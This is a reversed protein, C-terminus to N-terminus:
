VAPLTVSRVLSGTGCQLLDVVQTEGTPPRLVLVAPEGEYLVAVGTGDGYDIPSCGQWARQVRRAARSLPVSDEAGRASTPQPAVQRQLRQASRSFGEEDVRALRGRVVLLDGLAKQVAGGDYAFASGSEMSSLAEPQEDSDQGAAGGAASGAVAQDDTRGQSSDVASEESASDAATTRDGSPTGVVQGLGVGLVAVAAAAVLVSVVRRRRRAALEHVDAVPEDVPDEADLRALVDDLRSAVDDPIREDHRSRALLRRLRAEAAPDLEDTM